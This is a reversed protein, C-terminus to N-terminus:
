LLRTRNVERVFTNNHEIGHKVKFAVLFYIRITLIIIVNM